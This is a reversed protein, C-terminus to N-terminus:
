SSALALVASTTQGNDGLLDATRIADTPAPLISLGWDVPTGLTNRLIARFDIRKPCFVYVLVKLIKRFLDIEGRKTQNEPRSKDYHNFFRLFGIMNTIGFFFLRSLSFM